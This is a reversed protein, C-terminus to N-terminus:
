PFALAIAYDRVDAPWPAILSELRARDDAFLARIAEEFGAMDGAMASMFRYAAERRRRLEDKGRNERRATEVLKRLAVSAGGPQTALWDWHRPLLTVERPIVGLRPRGRGRTETASEVAPEDTAVAGASAAPSKGYLLGGPEYLRAIVDDDSGRTDIDVPWGTSDDYILIQVPEGKEVRRKVALAVETLPATLVRKHGDFATFSAASANPQTDDFETDM